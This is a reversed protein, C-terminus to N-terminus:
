DGGIRNNISPTLNHEPIHMNPNKKMIATMFQERRQQYSSKLKEPLTISIDDLGNVRLGPSVEFSRNNRRAEENIKYIDMVNDFQSRNYLAGVNRRQENFKDIFEFQIYRERGSGHFFEYLSEDKGKYVYNERAIQYDKEMQIKQAVQQDRLNLLRILGGRRCDDEYERQFHKFGNEYAVEHPDDYLKNLVRQNAGSETQISISPSYEQPIEWEDKFVDDDIEYGHFRMNARIAAEWVYKQEIYYREREKMEYEARRRAEYPDYYPGYWYQQQQYPNYVSMNQYNAYPNQQINPNYGYSNYITERNNYFSQAIPNVVPSNMFGVPPENGNYYPATSQYVAGQNYQNDFM